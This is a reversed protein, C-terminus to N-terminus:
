PRRRGRRFRNWGHSARSSVCARVTASKEFAMHLPRRARPKWYDAAALLALAGVVPWLWNRRQATVPKQISATLRGSDSEERWEQLVVKLDVMTQFRREPDKRLCRSVARDIEAPIGPATDLLPKPEARLVASLIALQSEGTFARSGTLMEYLVAGFSFIDSRADTRRGEAQEPSMYAATGIITGPNTNPPQLSVTPTSESAEIRETLKALGFDLVKVLGNGAVMINGPKLDRHVIGAAHAATLAAAVQVAYRLAEPLPLPKGGICEALTRGSVLEMVIFPLEGDTAIDHITVINPHNLASATQAEQMFRRKRDPDSLKDSPLLKIAVHRNLRTDLARYVAGMGGEGLKELVEFHLLRRGTV